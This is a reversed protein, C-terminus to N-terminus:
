HGRRVTLETHATIPAASPLARSLSAVSAPLSSSPCPAARRALKIFDPGHELWTVMADWADANREAVTAAFAEDWEPRSRDGLRSVAEECSAIASNGRELVGRMTSLLREAPGRPTQDPLADLHKTITDILPQGHNLFVEFQDWVEADRQQARLGYTEDDIPWGQEDALSDSIRDWNDLAKHGALLADSILDTRLRHVAHVYRPLMQTTIARVALAPQAPICISNPPYPTKSFHRNDPLRRNFDAPLCAGILLQEHEPQEIMLLEDTGNTLLAAYPVRETALAQALAGRDWLWDLHDQQWVPVCHVVIESSWEGPLHEAVAAAVDGLFPRELTNIVTQHTRALRALALLADRTADPAFPPVCYTGDSSAIFGAQKLATDAWRYNRGGPFATVGRSASYCLYICSSNANGAQPQTM